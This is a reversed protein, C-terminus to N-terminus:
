RKEHNITFVNWLLSDKLSVILLGQLMQISSFAKLQQKLINLYKHSFHISFYRDHFVCLYSCLKEKQINKLSIQQGFYIFFFSPIFNYISGIVLWDLCMDLDLPYCPCM